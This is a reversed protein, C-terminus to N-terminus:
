LTLISGAPFAVVRDGFSNVLKALAGEGTCHNLYYRLQPFQGALIEVVHELYAGEATILHTGGMVALIPEQFSHQVHWLTNLLGAHCCGCILIVGGPVELVLSMDDRYPDAQWGNGEPIAHNASRGELEPREIIEGSTWLGPLIMVPEDSLVLRDQKELDRYGVPLGMAQYEGHKRSYRPRFIDPHAYIPIDPDIRLIAGLGGTHDNHAHSLAVASIKCVDLGLMELNHSLVAESAGSDLLVIGAETEIWMSLGHEKKLGSGDLVTDNVVCIIRRKNTM